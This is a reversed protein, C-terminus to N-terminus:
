FPSVRSRPIMARPDVGTMGSAPKSLTRELHDIAWRGLASGDLHLTSAGAGRHRGADEGIPEDAVGSERDVTKQGTRAFEVQGDLPRSDRDRWGDIAQGPITGPRWTQPSASHSATASGPLPAVHLRTGAASQVTQIKMRKQNFQQLYSPIARLVSTPGAAYAFNSAYASNSDYAFDAVLASHAGWASLINAGMARAQQPANAAQLWRSQRSWLLETLQPESAGPTMAFGAPVFNRDKILTSASDSPSRLFRPPIWRIASDHHAPSEWAGREDAAPRRLMYRALLPAMPYAPFRVIRRLGLFWAIRKANRALMGAPNRPEGSHRNTSTM